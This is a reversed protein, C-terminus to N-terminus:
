HGICYLTSAARMYLCGGAYAPSALVTEDLPGEGIKEPKEGIKMVLTNDGCILYLKDGVVLPSAETSSRELDMQTLVKGTKNDLVTLTSELFHYLHQGDTTMSQSGSIGTGDPLEAVSWLVRGKDPNLAFIGSKECDVFVRTGDTVPSPGVCYEPSATLVNTSWVKAGTKADWATVDPDGLLVALTSGAKTEVLIPSAWTSSDRQSKWVQKGTAADYAAIFTEGGQFVAIVSNGHVLLSNDLGYKNDSTDGLAVSWLHKGTALDLASLQGNSFVAFLQKGNTAPTAGAHLMEDWQQDATELTYDQTAGKAAPVTTKWLLKGTAADFCFVLRKNVDASTVVVKDNWVVPSSWGPLDLKVKWLIGTNGPESWATLAAGRYLGSGTAGRFVPSNRDGDTAASPASDAGAIAM